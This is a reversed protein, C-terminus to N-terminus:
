GLADREWNLLKTCRSIYDICKTLISTQGESCGKTDANVIYYWYRKKSDYIINVTFINNSNLQELSNVM